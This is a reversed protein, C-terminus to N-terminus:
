WVATRGPFHGPGISARPSVGIPGWAQYFGRRFLANKKEVLRVIERFKFPQNGLFLWDAQSATASSCPCHWCSVRTFCWRPAWALFTGHSYVFCVLEVVIPSRSLLLLFFVFSPESQLSDPNRLMANPQTAASTAEFLVPETSEVVDSSASPSGPLSCVVLRSATAVYGFESLTGLSVSDVAAAVNAM